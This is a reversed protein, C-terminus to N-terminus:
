HQDGLEPFRRGIDDSQDSEKKPLSRQAFFDEIFGPVPQGSDIRAQYNVLTRLEGISAIQWSGTTDAIDNKTEPNIRWSVRGHEPDLTNIAGFRINWLFVRLHEELWFRNAEHRVIKIEKVGPIFRSRAEFDILVSWVADVPFRLIAASQVASEKNGNPGQSDVKSTVIEGQQVVEWDRESLTKRISDVDARCAICADTPTDAATQALAPSAAVLTTLLCTLPVFLHLSEM